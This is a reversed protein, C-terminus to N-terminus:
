QQNSQITEASVCRVISSVDGKESESAEPCVVVDPIKTLSEQLTAASSSVSPGSDFVAGQTKEDLDTV